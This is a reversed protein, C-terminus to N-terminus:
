SFLSKELSDIINKHESYEILNDHLLVEANISNLVKNNVLIYRDKRKIMCFCVPEKIKINKLDFTEHLRDIVKQHTAKYIYSGQESYILRGKDINFRILGM